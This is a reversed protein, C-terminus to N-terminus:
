KLLNLNKFQNNHLPSKIQHFLIKFVPLKQLKKEKIILRIIQIPYNFLLLIKMDIKKFQIALFIIILILYM